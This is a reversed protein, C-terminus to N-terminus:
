FRHLPSKSNVSIYAATLDVLEFFQKPPLATQKAVTFLIDILLLREAERRSMDDYGKLDKLEQSFILHLSCFDLCVMIQRCLASFFGKEALLENRFADWVANHPCLFLHHIALLFEMRESFFIDKAMGVVDGGCLM